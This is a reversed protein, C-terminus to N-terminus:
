FGRTLIWEAAALLTAATMDPVPGNYSIPGTTVLVAPLGAAHGADIDSGRDGIMFSKALDINREAAATLILGPLPKRCTCGSDLHPCYYVADVSADDQALLIDLAHGVRAVDAEQLLGRAVGSQNSVIIREYGAAAFMRLARSVTPLVRVADPDKVYGTDEILTGDRDLFIAPRKQEIM